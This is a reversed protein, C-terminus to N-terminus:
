RTRARASRLDAQYEQMLRDLAAQHWKERLKTYAELGAETLRYVTQKMTGGPFGFAAPSHVDEVSKTILGRKILSPITRDLIRGSVRGNVVAQLAEAQNSTLKRGM